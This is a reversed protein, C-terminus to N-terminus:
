KILKITCYEFLINIMDLIEYNYWPIVNGKENLLPREEDYRGLSLYGYSDIMRQHQKCYDSGELTCKSCQNGYHSSWVRACCVNNNNNVEKIMKPLKSSFEEKLNITNIKRDILQHLEEDSIDKNLEQLDTLLRDYLDNKLKKTLLTILLM